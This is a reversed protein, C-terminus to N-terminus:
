LGVNGHVDNLNRLISLSHNVIENGAHPTLFSYLSGFTEYGGHEFAQLTPVYGLCGNTLTVIATHAFPSKRKIYLGLEVFLEVPCTILAIEGLRIGTLSAKYSPINKAKLLQYSSLFYDVGDPWKRAIEEEQFENMQRLPLDIEVSEVKIVTDANFDLKAVSRIIEQGIRTGVDDSSVIPNINGCAGAVYFTMVEAGLVGTVEQEVKGPYDASVSGETPNNNAHLAYNYLLAKVKGDAKVAAMVFLKTDMPGEAPWKAREELPLLWSNWCDNNEKLLRRNHSLGEVESNSVGLKCDELNDNAKIVSQVIAERLRNMYLLHQQVIESHVHNKELYSAGLQVAVFDTYPGSHTHSACLVINAKAIGTSQEIESKVKLVDEAFLSIIDLSVIAVKVNGSSIVMAKSFLPDKILSTKRPYLSGAIYGDAEPTIDVKGIGVQFCHDM